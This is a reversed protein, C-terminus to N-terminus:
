ALDFVLVETDATAQLDVMSEESLAAGDGEGLPQGNLTLAGAAVQVWAHRGPRLELRTGEGPKLLSAYLDVDQHIAVAGDRAIVVTCGTPRRNDTHHGVEIGAVDCISDNLQQGERM